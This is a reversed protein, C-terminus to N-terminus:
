VSNKSKNTLQKIKEIGRHFLRIIGAGIVDLEDIREKKEETPYQPSSSPQTTTQEEM